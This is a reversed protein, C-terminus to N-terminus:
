GVPLLGNHFGVRSQADKAAGVNPGGPSTSSNQLWQMSADIRRESFSASKEESLNLVNFIPHASVEVASDQAPTKTSRREERGNSFPHKDRYGDSNERGATVSLTRSLPERNLTLCRVFTWPCATRKGTMGLLSCNEKTQRCARAAFEARLNMEYSPCSNRNIQACLVEAGM